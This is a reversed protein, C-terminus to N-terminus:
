LENLKAFKGFYKRAAENYKKLAKIKDNFYGLHFRKYNIVISASFKKRDKHYTVGKLKKHNNRSNEIRNCIRLNKHRNDLGNGNIHDVELNKPFNMLFRHLTIVNTKQTNKDYIGRAVYGLKTPYWKWKKLYKYDKDDILAFSNPHTKTSINLKKM